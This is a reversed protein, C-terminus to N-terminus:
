KELSKILGRLMKGVEESLDELEKYPKDRLYKLDYSLLIYYKTEELSGQAIYLMQVYEKINRRAYGEAINAPVSVVSRRLQSTLGFREIAPFIETERYIKLVLDHAKQWVKLERYTRLM